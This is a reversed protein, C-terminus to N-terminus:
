RCSPLSILCRDSPLSDCRSAMMSSAIMAGGMDTKAMGAPGGMARRGGLVGMGMAIAGAIQDDDMVADDFVIMRQPLFQLGFAVDEGGLGVGLDKGMQDLFIELIVQHRRHFLGDGPDFAGVGDAHEPRAHGIGQDGNAILARQHKADALLLAVKM